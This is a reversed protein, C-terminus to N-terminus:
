VGDAPVFLGSTTWLTAWCRETAVISPLGYVARNLGPPRRSATGVAVPM